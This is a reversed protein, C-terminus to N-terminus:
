ASVREQQAQQAQQPQQAPTAAIGIEVGDTRTTWDQRLCTAIGWFRLPRLVFMGWLMAPAYCVLSGLRYWWGEDSRRVAPIRLGTLYAWGVMATIAGWTFTASAPWTVVIMVPVISSALFLQIGIATFWWGYSRVPLYRLRWCNRITSGRMWRIWQRIHHSLTEPYMTLAFASSQQVARGRGRAFLTLAADDGLRVPRGMFTEGLYAPMIDRILSARYLAFAGRNVLMDGFSSQTGCAVVQFFISRASVTRTLWNVASNFALEIGAVSMVDPNAFPKLGEKIAHRELATDSDVTV